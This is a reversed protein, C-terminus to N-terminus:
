LQGRSKSPSDNRLRDSFRTLRRTSERMAAEKNQPTTRADRPNNVYECTRPFKVSM